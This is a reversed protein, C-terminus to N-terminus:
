LEARRAVHRVAHHLEGIVLRAHPARITRFGQGSVHRNPHLQDPAPEVLRRHERGTGGELPRPGPVARVQRTRLLRAPRVRLSVPLPTARMVLLSAAFTVYRLRGFSAGTLPEGGSTLSRTESISSRMSPSPM